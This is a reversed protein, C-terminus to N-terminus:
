FLLLLSMLFYIIGSGYLKLPRETACIDKKLYTLGVDFNYYISNSPCNIDKPNDNCIDVNRVISSLYALRILLDWFYYRLGNEAIM